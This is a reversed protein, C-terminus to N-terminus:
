LRSILEQPSAGATTLSADLDFGGQLRNVGASALAQKFDAGPLQAGVRLRPTESAEVSGSAALAGGFLRGSLRTVNLVSDKLALKLQPDEVKWSAWSPSKGALSVDADFPTLYDLEIPAKSWREGAQRPSLSGAQALMVG